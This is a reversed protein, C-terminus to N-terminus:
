AAADRKILVCLNASGEGLGTGVGRTLHDGAEHSLIERVIEPDRAEHCFLM